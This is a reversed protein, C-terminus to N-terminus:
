PAPGPLAGGVSRARRATSCSRRAQSSLLRLHPMPSRSGGCQSRTDGVVAGDVLATVVAARWAGRSMRAGAKRAARGIRSRLGGSRERPSVGHRAADRRRVDLPRDGEARHDRRGEESDIQMEGSSPDSCSPSTLRPISCSAASFLGFLAISCRSSSPWASTSCTRSAPSRIRMRAPGGARGRRRTVFRMGCGGAARRRSAAARTSCTSRM